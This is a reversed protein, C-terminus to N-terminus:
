DFNEMFEKLEEESPFMLDFYVTVPQTPAQTSPNAVLVAKYSLAHEIIEVAEGILIREYLIDSVEGRMNVINLLSNIGIRWVIPIM